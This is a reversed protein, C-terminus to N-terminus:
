ILVPDGHAKWWTTWWEVTNRLGDALSYQPTFGVETRLRTTDGVLMPVPDTEPTTGGLTVPAGLCRGVERALDALVVPEGSAINVADQVDSALLAALARGADAVHLYDRVQAPHRMPIAERMLGARVLQPVLRVPAEGPGHLFFVRGWGFTAGVQASWAKLAEYVSRKCAGYLTTPALPTEREACVGHASDYEASTGAVVVRRGGSRGFADILDISASAWRMNELSTLYQGPSV